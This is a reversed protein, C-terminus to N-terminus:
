IFLKGIGFKGNNQTKDHNTNTLIQDEKIKSIGIKNEHKKSDKENHFIITQSPNFHANSKKHLIFDTNHM